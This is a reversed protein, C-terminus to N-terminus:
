SHWLDLQQSPFNQPSLSGHAAEGQAESGERDTTSLHGIFWSMDLTERLDENQCLYGHRDSQLYPMARRWTEQLLLLNLRCVEATRDSIPWANLSSPIQLLLAIDARSISYGRKPESWVLGRLTLLLSRSSPSLQKQSAELFNAIETLTQKTKHITSCLKPHSKLQYLMPQLGRWISVGKDEPHYSVVTSGIGVKHPYHHSHPTDHSVTEYFVKMELAAGRYNNHESVVEETLSELLTSSARSYGWWRRPYYPSSDDQVHKDKGGGLYGSLYAAVSTHVEQAYAQLTGYRDLWCTGSNGEWMCTGSRASIDDLLATWKPKFGLLIKERVEVRPCYVCYHFHLAGRKQLEWVYFYYKSEVTRQLWHGLSEAIYSSYEAMAHFAAPTNGPLTGTLFVFDAPNTSLTDYAGGTRLLTRKANLGFKTRKFPLSRIGSDSNEGLTLPPTAGSLGEAEPESACSFESTVNSTVADDGQPEKPAAKYYHTARIENNPYKAYKIIHM